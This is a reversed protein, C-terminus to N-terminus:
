RVALTVGPQSPASGVIVIVPVAGGPSIGAPVRANVQLVGSVLGPASGAYLVEAEQGGITVRVPLLPHRLITGTVLGDVGSPSTHGEGTAYVVVVSGRSAPNDPGNVRGDENLIAGPGLGTSGLTFVGPASEAVQVEVPGSRSGQHEVEVRTRNRGALAYPVVVSVQRSSAYLIPAPVDDFRVRTDGASTDVLGAATLRLGAGAAPGLNSGFLTAILGPALPAAQFSAGNVVASVVPAAGAGAVTLRVGIALPSNAAQPATVTVTGHYSGPALGAPHASVTLSAPATGAAPAVRLWDGGASTSASATYSLGVGGLAVTQPAPAATGATHHFALEAPAATISPAIALTVPVIQPTNASAPAHLVVLGQYVGPALGAPNASVTLAGPAAGSRPSVQLWAGASVTAVTYSVPTGDTTTLNLVQPSGGSALRLAPPDAALLATDSVVLTVPVAAPSNGAGAASLTINGTYVGPALGAPTVSVTLTGPTTGGPAGAHLWPGGATTSAGVTFSFPGGSSTMTVTQGAPASKGTQFAFSLSAPSPQLLPNRTVNLNVPIDVPSNVAGAGTVRLSGEYLGPTLNAPNVALTVTSDTTGSLPGVALWPGGTKTTPAVNFTLVAGGGSLGIIRAVPPPGGIQHDLTVESPSPRLHAGATVTLTVPVRLPSNAAAPSSFTVFGSYAGPALDAPDIFVGATAPTTGTPPGARLWEGGSTSTTVTFDVPGGTTTLTLPQPLPAAQGAPHAFAVSEQDAILFPSASVTLGVEVSIPTNTAGPAGLTIRGTYVGPTIDGPRISVEFEGPTNVFSPSVQLWDGSGFTETSPQVALPAGNSAVTFKRTPLPATGTQYQFSLRVPDAAIQTTPRVVLTVGILVTPNAAGTAGIAVTGRYTGPGLAGPSVSVSLTASTTGAAPSVRLWTGGAVTAAAATFALPAGSATVFLGQSSPQLGAGVYTFSLNIPGVLLANGQAQLAEAGLGLLHALILVITWNRL